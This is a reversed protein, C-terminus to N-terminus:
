KYKQQTSNKHKRKTAEVRSGEAGVGRVQM